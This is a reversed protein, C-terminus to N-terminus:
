VRPHQGDLLTRSPRAIQSPAGDNLLHVARRDLAPAKAAGRARRRPDVPSRFLLGPRVRVVADKLRAAQDATEVGEATVNM